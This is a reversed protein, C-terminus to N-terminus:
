ILSSLLRPKEIIYGQAYDVGLLRLAELAERTEVQSAIVERKMYHAMDVMSRVM